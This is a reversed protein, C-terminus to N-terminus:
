YRITDSSIGNENILWGGRKKPYKPFESYYNSNEGDIILAKFSSSKNKNQDTMLGIIYFDNYYGKYMYAGDMQGLERPNRWIIVTLDIRAYVM